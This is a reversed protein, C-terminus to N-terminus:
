RHMSCTFRLGQVLHRRTRGVTSYLLDSWVLASFLKKKKGCPLISGHPPRTSYGWRSGALRLLRRFPFDRIQSLFIHDRTERSESGLIVSSALVLLLHLRCVRWRTLFLAGFWFVLLLRISIFIEDYGWSPHMIGLCVPWSVIPRLTLSPSLHSSFLPLCLLASLLLFWSLWYHSSSLSSLHCRM